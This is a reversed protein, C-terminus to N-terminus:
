FNDRFERLKVFTEFSKGHTKFIDQYEKTHCNLFPNIKMEHSALLPMTCARGKLSEYERRLKTSKTNLKLFTELNFKTYEHASWILDNEQFSNKLRELSQFMQELSGEFVRGCGAGFVTDGVFWHRQSTKKDVFLYCIHGLTHGPSRFIKCVNGMFDFEDGDSLFETQHPIRSKQADYFSGCVKIKPYEKMLSSIGDVHDHHHHTILISKPVLNNKRLFALVGSSEGPDVIFCESNDLSVLYIYNDMFSRLTKVIM